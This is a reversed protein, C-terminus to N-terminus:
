KICRWQNTSNKLSKIVDDSKKEEKDYVIDKLSYAEGPKDVKSMIENSKETFKYILDILPTVENNWIRVDKKWKLQNKLLVELDGFERHFPGSFFNDIDQGKAGTHGAVVGTDQEVLVNLEELLNNKM